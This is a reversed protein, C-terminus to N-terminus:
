KELGAHIGQEKIQNASQKKDVFIVAHYAAIKCETRTRETNISCFFSVTQSSQNIVAFTAITLCLKMVNITHRM